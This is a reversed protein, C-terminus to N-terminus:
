KNEVKTFFPLYKGNSFKVIAIVYKEKEFDSYPMPSYPAPTMEDSVNILVETDYVSDSSTTVSTTDLSTSTGIADGEIDVVVDDERDGTMTSSSTSFDNTTILNEYINDKFSEVLKSRKYIKYDLITFNPCHGLNYSLKKTETNALNILKPVMQMSCKQKDDM